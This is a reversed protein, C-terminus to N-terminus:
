NMVIDDEDCKLCDNIVVMLFNFVSLLVVFIHM